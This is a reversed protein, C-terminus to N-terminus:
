RGSEKERKGLWALLTSLVVRDQISLHYDDAYERALGEIEALTYQRQALSRLARAVRQEVDNDDTILSM